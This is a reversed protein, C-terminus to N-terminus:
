RRLPVSLRFFEIRSGINRNRKKLQDLPIERWQDTKIKSGIVYGLLAGPVGGVVLGFVPPIETNIAGSPSSNQNSLSLGAHISGVLFGILAGKGPHKKIGIKVQIKKIDRIPIIIESNDKANIFRINSSDLERFVGKFTKTKINIISDPSEFNFNSKVKIVANEYISVQCLLEGHIILVIM